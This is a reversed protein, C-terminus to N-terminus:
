LLGKPADQYIIEYIENPEKTGAPLPKTKGCFDIFLERHKVYNSFINQQDQIQIQHRSQLSRHHGAALATSPISLSLILFPITLSKYTEQIANLSQFGVSNWITPDLLIITAIGIALILPVVIAIRVISTEFLTRHPDMADWYRVRKGEPPCNTSMIESQRIFPWFFAGSILPKERALHHLRRSNFGRGGASLDSSCVDSSWDRSFR